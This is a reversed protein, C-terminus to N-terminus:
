INAININIADDIHGKNYEKSSRVDILQVDKGIANSKLTEISIREVGEAKQANCSSLTVIIYVILLLNKM